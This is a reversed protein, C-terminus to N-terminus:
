KIRLLYSAAVENGLEKAKLWDNKAEAKKGMNMYCIGRNILATTNESDSKLFFTFDKEATEYDKLKLSATARQLFYYKYYFSKEPISNSYKIALSYENVAPKLENKIRYIEGTYFCIDDDEEFIKKSKVFINLITDSNNNSSIVSKYLMDFNQRLLSDTKISEVLLATAQEFEKNEIKKGALNTLEIAKNRSELDVVYTKEQGFVQLSVMVTIVLLTNKM